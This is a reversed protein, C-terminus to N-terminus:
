KGDDGAVPAKPRLAELEAALHDREARLRELGQQHSSCMDGASFVFVLTWILCIFMFLFAFFSLKRETSGHQYGPSTIQLYTNMKQFFKRLYWVPSSRRPPSSADDDEDFDRRMGSEESYPVGM